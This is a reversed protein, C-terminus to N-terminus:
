LGRSCRANRAAPPVPSERHCKRRREGGLEEAGNALTDPFLQIGRSDLDIGVTTTQLARVQCEDIVLQIRRDRWCGCCGRAALRRASATSATAGRGTAILLRHVAGLQTGQASRNRGSEGLRAVVFRLRVQFSRLVLDRPHEVRFEKGGAHGGSTCSADAAHHRSTVGRPAASTNRAAGEEYSRGNPMGLQYHVRLFSACVFGYLPQSGDKLLM